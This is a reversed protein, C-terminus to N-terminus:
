SNEEGRKGLCYYNYADLNRQERVNLGKRGLSAEVESLRIYPVLLDKTFYVDAGGEHKPGINYVIFLYDEDKEIPPFGGFHEVALKGDRWHVFMPELMFIVDGAQVEGHYVEQVLIPTENHQDLLSFMGSDYQTSKGDIRGRVVIYDKLALRDQLEKFDQPGEIYDVLGVFDDAFRPLTSLEFQSKDPVPATKVKNELPEEKPQEQEPPRLEEKEQAPQEQPQDITPEGKPKEEAPEKQETGDDKEVLQEPQSLTAFDEQENTRACGM